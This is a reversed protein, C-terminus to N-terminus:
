CGVSCRCAWFDSSDNRSIQKTCGCVIRAGPIPSGCTTPSGIEALCTKEWCDAGSEVVTLSRIFMNYPGRMVNASFRGTSHFAFIQLCVFPGVVAQLVEKHKGEGSEGRNRCVQAGEPAEALMAQCIAVARAPDAALTQRAEIFRQCNAQKQALLQM